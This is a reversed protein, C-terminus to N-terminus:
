DTKQNEAKSIFLGLTRANYLSPELCNEICASFNVPQPHLVLIPAKIGSQRLAIGEHVYAVAFYDVELSELFRPIEQVDSGYGFAKVVALFKAEPRIKSKLYEYNHQLANLDIELVTEQAEPM